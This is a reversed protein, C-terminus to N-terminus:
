KPNNRGDELQYGSGMKKEVRDMFLACIPFYGKGRELAKHSGTGVFHVGL